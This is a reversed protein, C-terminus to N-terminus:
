RWMLGQGTLCAAVTDQPLQGMQEFLSVYDFQNFSEAMKGDEFRIMVHGSTSVPKGTASCCSQFSIRAALWDDQEIAHIIRISIRELRSRLATVFAEFDARTLQLSPLVGTATTSPFFYDDLASLDGRTWAQDYWRQLIDTKSPSASM